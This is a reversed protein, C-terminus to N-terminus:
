VAIANIAQEGGSSTVSQTSRDKTAKRSAIASDRQDCFEGLVLLDEEEVKSIKKTADAVFKDSSQDHLSRSHM